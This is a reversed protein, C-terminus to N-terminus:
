KRGTFPPCPGCGQEETQYLRALGAVEIWPFVKIIHETSDHAMRDATEPLQEGVLPLREGLVVVAQDDLRM